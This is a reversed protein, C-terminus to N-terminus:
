KLGRSLFISYFEFQIILLLTEGSCTVRQIDAKRQPGHPASARETVQAEAARHPWLRGSSGAHRHATIIHPIAVSASASVYEEM